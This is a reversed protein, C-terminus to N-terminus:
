RFCDYGTFIILGLAVRTNFSEVSLVLLLHFLFALIKIRLILGRSLIQLITLALRAHEICVTFVDNPQAFPAADVEALQLEQGIQPGVFLQHGVGPDHSHVVLSSQSRLLYVLAQRHLLYVLLTYEKRPVLGFPLSHEPEQVRLLELLELCVIGQKLRGGFLSDLRLPEVELEVVRVIHEIGFHSIIVTAHSTSRSVTM